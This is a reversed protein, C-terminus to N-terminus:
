RNLTPLPDYNYQTYKSIISALLVIITMICMAKILRGNKLRWSEFDASANRQKIKGSMVFYGFGFIIILALEFTISTIFQYM